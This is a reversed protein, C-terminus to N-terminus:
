RGQVKREKREKKVNADWSLLTFKYRGWGLTINFHSSATQTHVNTEPEAVPDPDSAPKAVVEWQQGDNQPVDAGRALSSAQNKSESSPRSEKSVKYTGGQQAM